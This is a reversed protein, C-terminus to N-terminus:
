AVPEPDVLLGEDSALRIIREFPMVTRIVRGKSLSGDKRLTKLRPKAGNDCDIVCQKLSGGPQGYEATNLHVGEASCVCVAHSDQGFYEKDGPYRQWMNSIVLVDGGDLLMDRTYPESHTVILSINLGYHYGNGEARNLWPLRVGIRYWGWQPLDGCTSNTRGESVARYRDDTVQVRTAEPWGCARQWWAVLLKRLYHVQDDSIAAM